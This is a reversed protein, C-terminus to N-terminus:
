SNLRTSKRDGAIGRRPRQSRTCMLAEAAVFHPRLQGVEIGGSVRVPLRAAHAVIRVLLRPGGIRHLATGGGPAMRVPAGLREVRTQAVLLDRLLARQAVLRVGRRDIGAIAAPTM